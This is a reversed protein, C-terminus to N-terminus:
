DHNPGKTNEEIFIEIEKNIRNQIDWCMNTYDRDWPHAKATERVSCKLAEILGKLEEAQQKTVTQSEKYIRLMKNLM